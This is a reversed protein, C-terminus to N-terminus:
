DGRIANELREKLAMAAASHTSGHRASHIGPLPWARCAIYASENRCSVLM